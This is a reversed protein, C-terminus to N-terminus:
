VEFLSKRIQSKSAHRAPILASLLCLFFVTAIVIVGDTLLMKVPFADIMLSTEESVQFSLIHYKNQLVCFGIGLLMGTCVGVLGIFFGEWIFINRITNPRTGLTLLIGIDKKKETIIMSLAGIINFSILVMMFVIVLAAITKENRLIEYMTKHQEYWTEIIYKDGFLESLNKQIKKVQETNLVKIEYASIQNQAEFLEQAIPLDVLVYQNDYEQHKNFIGAPYVFRKHLAQEPDTTLLDASESVTFLELPTVWDDVSANISFAVGSGIVATHEGDNTKLGYQGVEILSAIQTVRRYDATVGKLRIIKQKENKKIIARGEITTTVLAVGPISQIQQLREHSFPFYKGTKPVIRLDADYAQYYDRILFHFGNFVSLVIFLLATGFTIGLVSIVSILNLAIPLRSSFLYRRAITFSLKM